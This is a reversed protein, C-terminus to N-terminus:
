CNILFLLPRAARLSAICSQSPHGLATLHRLGFVVVATYVLLLFNCLLLKYFDAAETKLQSLSELWDRRESQHTTWWTCRFFYIRARSEGRHIRQLEWTLIIALNSKMYIIVFGIACNFVAM